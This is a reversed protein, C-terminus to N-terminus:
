VISDLLFNSLDMIMDYFEFVLIRSLFDYSVYKREQIIM